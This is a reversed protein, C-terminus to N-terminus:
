AAVEAEVSVATVETRDTGRYDDEMAAIEMAEAFTAVLGDIAVAILTDAVAPTAALLLNIMGWVPPMGRFPLGITAELWDAAPSQAGVARYEGIIALATQTPAVCPYRTTFKM